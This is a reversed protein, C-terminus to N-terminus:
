IHNTRFKKVNKIITTTKVSNNIANNLNNAKNIKTVKNERTVKDDVYTMTSKNTTNFITKSTATTKITKYGEKMKTTKINKTASKMKIKNATNKWKRLINIIYSYYYENNKKIIKTLLRKRKYIDEKKIRIKSKANLCLQKFLEFINKKVYSSLVDQLKDCFSQYYIALTIYRLVKKRVLFGRIFSQLRIASSNTIDYVEDQEKNFRSRWWYQIIKAAKMRMIEDETYFANNNYYNNYNQTHINYTYKNTNINNNNIKTINSRNKYSSTQIVEKTIINNVKNDDNSPGKSEIM